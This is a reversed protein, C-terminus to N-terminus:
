NKQETKVDHKKCCACDEKKHKNKIWKWIAGIGAAILLSEIIGGCAICAIM